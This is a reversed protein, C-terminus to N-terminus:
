TDVGSSPGPPSASQGPPGPSAPPASTTLPALSPPTSPSPSVPIAAPPAIQPVAVSQKSAEARFRAALAIFNKTGAIAQVALGMGIARLNIATEKKEALSKVANGYAELERASVNQYSALHATCLQALRQLEPETCVDFLGSYANEWRTESQLRDIRRDIAGLGTVIVAELGIPVDENSATRFVLVKSRVIAMAGLGAVLTITAASASPLVNFARILGLAVLSVIGNGVIYSWAIPQRLAQGPEDRYRGVLETTGVLCGLVLVCAIVLLNELRQMAALYYSPWSFM